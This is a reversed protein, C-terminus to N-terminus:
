KFDKPGGAVMQAQRRKEDPSAGAPIQGAASEDIEYVRNARVNEISSKKGSRWTVELRMQNGMTGAAFVRMADDGSLYRGGCIMQQSQMPVAGGLLKIKAGIGATNPALGKLRVAVRPASSNNRYILPADNLCNIIVDLGGDNDLDALAIGHSVRTSNFGWKQGAEEFTLNGRNRFAYNPTALAPFQRLNNPDIGPQRNRENAAITDMDQTDYAHGNVVLLDEFGDLDVDLFVPCWSWDSAELGAFSAIEAFTSDGRNLFLTNRRIQPRDAVREGTLGIPLALPELQTMRLRHHRSLMDVVFFDPFGDRNIDAFDVGMSFWSTHRVAERAMLRFHGRGDNMWIRDPTQFDNCVYLDPFGDGNIDYFMASLGMDLPAATLRKGEEDLFRGDTWSAVTFHGRGDNRYLLDAEGLEIIKGDIIKLRNRYRGSFQPQGNVYNVIPMGGGRLISSEGYNVVYLDLTGNGDIDALAMSTSGGKFALGAAVTVNSFHGGGDNLFLINTRGNSTVLLDPFGDGNVDAFVAATSNMNSLIVGAKETVDEFRGNGMNRFLANRGSKSCFYLDCLGDGDFDGAAVGSGNLLNQNVAASKYELFNTWEIGTEKASLLTFGPTGNPRVALERFRGGPIAQWEPLPGAWGDM